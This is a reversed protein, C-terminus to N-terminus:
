KTKQDLSWFLLATNESIEGPVSLQNLSQSDQTPSPQLLINIRISKFHDILLPFLIVLLQM